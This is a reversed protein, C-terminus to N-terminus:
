VCVLADFCAACSVGLNSSRSQAQRQYPHGRQREHRRATRAYFYLELPREERAGSSIEKRQAVLVQDSHVGSANPRRAPMPPEM